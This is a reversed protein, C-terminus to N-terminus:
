PKEGWFDRFGKFTINLVKLWGKNFFAYGSYLPLVLLARFEEECFGLFISSFLNDLIYLPWDPILFSLSIM